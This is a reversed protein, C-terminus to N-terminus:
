DINNNQNNFKANKNIIKRKIINELNRYGHGTFVCFMSIDVNIPTKVDYRANLIVLFLIYYM